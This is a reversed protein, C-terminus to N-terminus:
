QILGGIAWINLGILFFFSSFYVGLTLANGFYPNNATHLARVYFFFFLLVRPNLCEGFYPNNLSGINGM